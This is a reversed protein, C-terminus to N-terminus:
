IKNKGTCMCVPINLYISHVLFNTQSSTAPECEFEVLVHMHLLFSDSLFHKVLTVNPSLSSYLWLKGTYLQALVISSEISNLGVEVHM